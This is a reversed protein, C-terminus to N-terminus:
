RRKGIMRASAVGLAAVLAFAVIIASVALWTLYNGGAVLGFPNLSDDINQRGELGAYRVPIDPIGNENKDDFSQVYGVLAAWDKIEQVGPTGINGDIRAKTLDEIVAGTRDRPIITLIGQTFSGIVKLFTANYINSVVKYRRPNDASFDVPVFKGQADAVEIGTVRDFWMRNRNFAVKAGSFQIFYDDGKLSPLTTLVEFMKKLEAGSIYVSVLPYAASGDSGVGLPVVRFLDSVAIAGTQGKLVNDRIVGNSYIAIDVRSDPDAPDYEAENAAWLIADTVLNGLNSEDKGLVLDFGTEAVVQDFRLGVPALTLDNVTDIASVILENIRADGKITDDITVYDYGIKRVGDPGVSLDLVGVRKGYGLGHVIITGNQVIPEPLLTDTHGSIIVDIGEVERALRQDESKEPNEHLGGHCLCVVVDVGEPGRLTAVMQKAYVVPDGFRVPKAFPSVEAANEGMLGFVGIRLDQRQLVTYPKIVGSRLQAELGDDRPDNGDFLLNSAVIQPMAQNESAVGVIQSLGEPRFDFEHNGITTVDIGMEKMLKLELAAERSVTHFLSGMLFDGADLAVVPNERDSRTRAIVMAVRAWGGVTEDDGTTLPSYEANPSFGLLHSHMDNTHVITLRKEEAIAGNQSAALLAVLFCFIAFVNRM